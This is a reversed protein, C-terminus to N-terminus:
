YNNSSNYLYHNNDLKRGLQPKLYSNKSILASIVKPVHNFVKGDINLWLNHTTYYYYYTTLCHYQKQRNRNFSYLCNRNNLGIQNLNNNIPRIANYTWTFEYTYLFIMLSARIIYQMCKFLGNSKLKVFHM